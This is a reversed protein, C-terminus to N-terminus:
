RSFFTGLEEQQDNLERQNYKRNSIAKNQNTDSSSIKLLNETIQLPNDQGLFIRNKKM